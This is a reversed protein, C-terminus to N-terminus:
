MDFLLLELESQLDTCFGEKYGRYTLERAQSNKLAVSKIFLLHRLNIDGKSASRHFGYIGHEKLIETCAKAVAYCFDSYDASFNLKGKRYNEIEIELKFDEKKTPERRFTWQSKFIDENLVLTAEYPIFMLETRKEPAKKNQQEINFDPFDIYTKVSEPTIDLDDQFPHFHYLIKLLEYLTTIDAQEILLCNEKECFRLLIEMRENPTIDIKVPCDRKTLKM